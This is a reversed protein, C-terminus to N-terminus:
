KSPTHQRIGVAEQHFDHMRIQKDEQPPCPVVQPFRDEGEVTHARPLSRLDNPKAALAKVHQVMKGAWSPILILIVRAETM